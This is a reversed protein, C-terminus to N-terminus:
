NLIKLESDINYQTSSIRFSYKLTNLSLSQNIMAFKYILKLVNVILNTEIEFIVKQCEGTKVVVFLSCLLYYLHIIRLYIKAIGSDVILKTGKGFIMRGM